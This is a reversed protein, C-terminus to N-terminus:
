ARIQRLELVVDVFHTVLASPLDHRWAVAVSVPDIGEAPVFTVGPWQYYTATSFPTTSIARGRILADIWEDRNTIVAGVPRRRGDRRPQLQHYDTWTAVTPDDYFEPPFGFFPEDEVDELTVVHRTALPHDSALVFYRPEDFLTATSIHPHVIPEWV